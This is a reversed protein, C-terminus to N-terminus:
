GADRKKFNKLQINKSTQHKSTPTQKESLALFKASRNLGDIQEHLGAPARMDEQRM